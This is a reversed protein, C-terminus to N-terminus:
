TSGPAAAFPMAVDTPAATMDAIGAAPAPDSPWAAGATAVAEIALECDDVVFEFVEEIQPLLAPSRLRGTWGLYPRDPEMDPLLPLLETEAKLELTGLKRLERLIYLPENAKRLLDAKPRFAIRYEQESPQQDAAALEEIPVPVFDLGEFDAPA